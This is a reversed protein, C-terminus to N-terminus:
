LEKHNGKRKLHIELFSILREQETHNQSVTKFSTFKQIFHIKMILLKDQINTIFIHKCM